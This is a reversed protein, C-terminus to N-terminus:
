KHLAKHKQVEGLPSVHEDLTFVLRQPDMFKAEDANIEEVADKTLTSVAKQWDERSEWSVEMFVDYATDNGDTGEGAGAQIPRLYKRSYHVANWTIYKYGINVHNKEYYEKFEEHSIGAKRKFLVGIRFM